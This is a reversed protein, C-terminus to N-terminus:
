LETKILRFDATQLSSRTHAHLQHSKKQLKETGQFHNNNEDNTVSILNNYGAVLENLSEVISDADAKLSITVPEETVKSLKSMM